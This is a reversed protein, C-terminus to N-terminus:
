SAISNKAQGDRAFPLDAARVPAGFLYGQFHTCGALKLLSAQEKNEIGEAVVNLGAAKAVLIMGQAMTLASPRRGVESCITRDLKLADFHFQRLYAISAYGTGFDDLFIRIGRRKLGDIVSDLIAGDLLLKSETMEIQIRDPTVGHAKLAADVVDLFALSRMQLASINVNVLLHPYARALACAEELVFRGLEDILGHEEAIRIFDVPPIKQGDARTWRALVELAVPNLSAVEVIPQCAIWFEGRALGKRIDEAMTRRRKMESDIEHSYVGISGGGRRKAEYMAIDARRLLEEGNTDGLQSFAIGASAAVKLNHSGIRLPESSLAIAASAIRHANNQVGQGTLLVVFEDGGVRAVLGKGSVLATLGAGFAQLLRDGMEHGYFDNIEKFGDLDLFIAATEAHHLTRSLEELKAILAARNSLGTLPDHIAAHATRRNSAHVARFALWVVAIMVTFAIALLVFNWIVKPQIRSLALNGPQRPAWALGGIIRGGPERIASAQDVAELDRIAVLGGIAFDKQIRGVAASDLRKGIVLLAPAGDGSSQVSWWAPGVSVAAVGFKTEMFGSRVSNRNVTAAVDRLIPPFARGLAATPDDHIRKGDVCAVIGRLNSSVLFFLNFNIGLRTGNCLGVVRQDFLSARRHPGSEPPLGAFEANLDRIRQEMARLAARAAQATLEKDIKNTQEALESLASFIVGGTSGLVLFAILALLASLRHSQIRPSAAM